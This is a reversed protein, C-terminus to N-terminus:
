GAARVEVPRIIEIRGDPWRLEFSPPDGANAVVEADTTDPFEFVFQRGDSVRAVYRGRFTPMQFAPDRPESM